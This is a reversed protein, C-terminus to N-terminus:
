EWPLSYGKKSLEEKLRNFIKQQVWEEYDHGFKESYRDFVGPKDTEFEKDFDIEPHYEDCFFRLWDTTHYSCLGCFMFEDMVDYDPDDYETLYHLEYDKTVIWQGDRISVLFDEKNDAWPVRVKKEM